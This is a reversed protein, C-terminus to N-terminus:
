FTQLRDQWDRRKTVKLDRLSPAKVQITLFYSKRPGFPVFTLTMEWCHLDRYLNVTTFTMKQTTFDYGSNFSIRWSSTPNVNGSISLSQSELKQFAPKSYTFIYNFQLSWEWGFVDRIPDVPLLTELPAGFNLSVQTWRGLRREGSGLYTQNITRGVSDLRYPSLTAQLNFNMKGIILTRAVFEFPSLRLSDAAFNYSTSFGINDFLTIYRFKDRPNQVLTDPRQRIDKKLVKMQYQNLLNFHLAKIEGQPPGGFLGDEVISYYSLRGTTDVQVQKYVKWHPERFDPQYQLSLSPIMTHRFGWNKKQITGYLTTALQTQFQFDRVTTFRLLTDKKVFFTDDRSVFTKQVQVPYWYENLSFTPTLTFHKLVKFNVNTQFTQKLGYRLSDQFTTPRFLNSDRVAVQSNFTAAYNIGIREYWHEKTVGKKSKFPFFRPRSLFVNPANITVLRTQLQQSHTAGVVVYWPSHPFQHNMTVSSQLQTTLYDQIQYSNFKLFNSSGANVNATLKTQTSLNQQHKWRVFFTKNERFDPDEQENYRQISYEVNLEGNLFYRKQYRSLLGIRFGGKSFLDATFLFDIYDSKGWYYGFNRAFFGRDIAEGFVPFLFGSTRGRAQPFYGFPIVVPIPVGMVEMYLPGSIIKDQPLVKLKTAKISFHPPMADCTTFIGGKVYFHGEPERKVIKGYIYDTGQKTEIHEIYGRKTKLHYILSDAIYDGKDDSFTPKQLLTDKLSDYAYPYARILNHNWDLEIIGAKLRMEEYHIESENYLLIRKAEPFFVISDKARYSVPTKLESEVVVKGTDESPSVAYLTDPLLTTETPMSDKPQGEQAWLPIM